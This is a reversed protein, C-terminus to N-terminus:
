APQLRDAEDVPAIRDRGARKASYLAQDARHLVTAATTDPHGAAVGGSFTVSIHAGNVAVPTDRILRRLRETTAWAHAATAEPFLIAFEEGGYRAVCDIARVAGAIREAIATLVLDGAQHGYTDNIRKFHDIDILAVAFGRGTRAARERESDFQAMLTRRNALGTLPDTSALHALTVNATRLEHTRRDIMEQLLRTRRRLMVTGLQIIGAIAVLLLILGAIRVSWREYWLPAVVLSITTEVTRADIGPIYARLHLRYRGGGLHTYTASAPTAPPVPTWDDDFGDLRYSYRVEEPAAYDTLAFGIRVTHRGGDIHIAHAGPAHDFALPRGDQDADTAVLDHPTVPRPALMRDPRLVILGGTGGFLLDGGHTVAAARQNFAAPTLGDRRSVSRVRRGRPDVVSIGSASAAWIRGGADALLAAVNDNALGQAETIARFRWGNGAPVGRAVGGYTGVWLLSGARVISGTYNQPLSTPDAPRNRFTTFRGTAPDFRSIGGPTAIWPRGDPQAVINIVEDNTLSTADGDRHRYRRMQRRGADWVYLGRDTGILLRPGAYGLSIVPLEGLAPLALDRTAFTEPDIAIVGRAGVLVTGDAREVFAKVDQGAHRGPLTLHRVRGAQRDIRDVLGNSMGVWIRDGRDVMVGRVNGDALSRLRDPMADTITFMADLDPATQSAGVETAAWLRGTRDITLDRVTDGALSGPNAAVNRLAQVSFGADPRIRLVGMGDTAVWMDGDRGTAFARITRHGILPAAGTLAAPQQFRGDPRRIVIGKSGTGIWLRGAADRAIAWVDGLDPSAVRVFGGAAARRVFLGGDGGALVTGDPDRHVAFAGGALARGGAGRDLLSVIRDARADYHFVGHDSAILAGDHGDPAFALIRSGSGTGDPGPIRLFRRTVPDFRVAGGINTGVLMGGRPLPMLARIYNDPLSAADRPSQRFTRVRQGDYRALGGRTGIWILGDSGQVIATTTAHPLGSSGDLTLFRPVRWGAWPDAARADAAASSAIGATLCLCTFFRRM